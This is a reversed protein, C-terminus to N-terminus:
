CPLPAMSMYVGDNRVPDYDIGVVRSGVGSESYLRARMCAAVEQVVPTNGPEVNM